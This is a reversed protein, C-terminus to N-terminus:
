SLMTAMTIISISRQLSRAQKVHNFYLLPKSPSTFNFTEIQDYASNYATKM